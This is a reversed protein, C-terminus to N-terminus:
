GLDGATEDLPEPVLLHLVYVPLGVIRLDLALDLVPVLRQLVSDQELVVIQRSCEVSGDCCEQIGLIM